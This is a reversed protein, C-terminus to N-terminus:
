LLPRSEREEMRLAHHQAVLQLIEPPLDMGLVAIQFDFRRNHEILLQPQAAPMPIMVPIVHIGAGDIVPLKAELRHIAGAAHQHILPTDVAVAVQGQAHALQPQYVPVLGGSGQVAQHPHAAKGLVVGVDEHGLFLDPILHGPNDLQRILHILDKPERIM